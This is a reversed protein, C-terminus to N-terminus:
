MRDALATLNVLRNKPSFLAVMDEYQEDDGKWCFLPNLTYRGEVKQIFGAGVLEGYARSVNPQVIGMKRSTETPGSVENCWRATLVLHLLVKLSEGRLGGLGEEWGTDQWLKMYGEKRGKGVGTVVARIYRGTESRITLTQKSKKIRGRM